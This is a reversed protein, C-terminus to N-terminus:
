PANFYLILLIWVIFNLILVTGLLRKISIGKNFYFYLNDMYFFYYILLSLIFSISFQFYLFYKIFSYM